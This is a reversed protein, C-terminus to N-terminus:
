DRNAINCAACLIRFRAYEQHYARWKRAFDSDEERFMAQHLEPHDDFLTPHPKNGGLFDDSMWKFKYPHHDAHRNRDLLLTQGCLACINGAHFKFDDIQPRIAIRMADLLLRKESKRKGTVCARWSFDIVTGDIREICTVHRVLVVRKVGVGIKKSAEPHRQVLWHWFPDAGDFERLKERVFAFGEAQTKWYM